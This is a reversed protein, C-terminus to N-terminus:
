VRCGHFSHLRAAAARTSDRPDRSADDCPKRHQHNSKRPTVAAAVSASTPHHHHDGRLGAAGGRGHERRRRRARGRGVAVPGERAAHVILGDPPSVAADDRDDGSHDDHRPEEQGDFLARDDLHPGVARAVLRHQPAHVVAAPRVRQRGDDDHRARLQHGHAVRLAGDCEPGLALRRHNCVIKHGPRPTADKHQAVGPKRLSHGDRCRHAVM